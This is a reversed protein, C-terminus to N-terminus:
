KKTNEIVARMAGLKECTETFEREANSAHVIGGGAQLTWIDKQKSAMM